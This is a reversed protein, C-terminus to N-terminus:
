KLDKRKFLLLGATTILVFLVADYVILIEPRAARQNVHQLTQGGPTFDSLFQIADRVPGEPVYAPNPSEEAEVIEGGVSLVYGQVTPQAELRGELYAGASLLALSLLMAAAATITRGSVLMALFTFLATWALSLTYVGAFFLVARAPGMAFGGLLPLGLALGPVVASTCMILSAVSCLILNSLYLSSKSHGCVVKNRITGDAYDTGIFLTCIIPILFAIFLVYYLFATDLSSHYGYEVGDSYRTWISKVTVAALFACSLWLTKCRWLRAFGASLLNRM